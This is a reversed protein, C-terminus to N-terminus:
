KKKSPSKKSRKLSIADRDVIEIDGKVFVKRYTKPNMYRKLYCLALGAIPNYTDDKGCKVETKTHDDWIVTTEGKKKSTIVKEPVLSVNKKIKSLLSENLIVICRYAEDMLALEEKLDKEYSEHEAITKAKRELEESLRANELELSHIYSDKVSIAHDKASIINRLEKKKM